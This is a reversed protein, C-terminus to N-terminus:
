VDRLPMKLAEATFNHICQQNRWYPPKGSNKGSM